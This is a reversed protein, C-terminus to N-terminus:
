ANRGICAGVLGLMALKLTAKELGQEQLTAWTYVDTVAVLQATRVAREEGGWAALLPGFSHEVWARHLAKGARTVDAAASSQEALALLRLALGGMEDYHELLNDVAGEVDGPTVRGRAAAVEAQTQTVCTAFLQEKSGFRRLVTPVTVGAEAAVAELIPPEGTRLFLAKTAEVIRLATREAAEARRTQVYSRREPSESKM